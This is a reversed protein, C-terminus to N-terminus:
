AAPQSEPKAPRGDHGPLTKDIGPVQQPEASRANTRWLVSDYYDYLDVIAAALAGPNSRVKTYVRMGSGAQSYNDLNVGIRGGGCKPFSRVTDHIDVWDEEWYSLDIWEGDEIWNGYEDYYGDWYGDEVWYGNDYSSWQSTEVRGRGDLLDFLRAQSMGRTIARYEGTTVCRRHDTAANASGATAVTLGSGVVLAALAALIIRKFM